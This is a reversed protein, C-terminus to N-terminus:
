EKQIDAAQETQETQEVQETQAAQETQKKASISRKIMYFITGIVIAISILQSTSLGFLFGRLEDGRLFEFGFRAPAYCLLYVCFLKGKAKNKSLLYNLLLFLCLNFAAEVLQIPFRSVGNAEELMSNHFTIGFECEVGYCCGGFFCGIRGFCHFLPVAPAAIDTFVDFDLGKKRIYISGALMGGLLGGYFVSGGFVLVAYEIFKQFSEASTLVYWYSFNTMGYLLHGGVLVGIASILLTVIMDNDDYGRKKAKRCAYIGAAFVGILAAITYTSITKGLLEFSSFM